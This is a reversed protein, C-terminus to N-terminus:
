KVVHCLISMENKMPYVLALGKHHPLKASTRRIVGITDQKTVEHHPLLAYPFTYEIWINGLLHNPSNTPTKKALGLKPPL